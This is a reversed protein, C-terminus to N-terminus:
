RVTAEQERTPTILALLLALGSSAAVAWLMWDFAYWKAAQSQLAPDVRDSYGSALMESFIPEVLLGAILSGIVFLSLAFLLLKRRRTKWNAILAVLFLVSTIMPVTNWFGSSNYAYDGTLIAFSRPPAAAVTGAVVVLAFLQAGIQIFCTAVLAALTLNPANVRKM